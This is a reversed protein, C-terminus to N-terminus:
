QQFFTWLAPNVVRWPAHLLLFSYAASYEKCVGTIVFFFESNKFHLQLCLWLVYIVTLAFANM